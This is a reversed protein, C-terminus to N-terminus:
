RVTRAAEAAHREQAEALATGDKPAQEGVVARRVLELSDEIAPEGDAAVRPKAANIVELPNTQRSAFEMVIRKYHDREREVGQLHWKLTQFIRGLETRGFREEQEWWGRLLDEDPWRDSM